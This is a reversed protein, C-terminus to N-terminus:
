MPADTGRQGTDEGIYKSVGKGDTYTHQIPHSEPHFLICFNIPKCRQFHSTICLNVAGSKDFLPVPHGGDDSYGTFLKRQNYEVKNLEEAADWQELPPSKTLDM